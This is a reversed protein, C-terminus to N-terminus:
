RLGGAPLYQASGYVDGGTRESLRSFFDSLRDEGGAADRKVDEAMADASILLACGDDSIEWGPPYGTLDSPEIGLTYDEPEDGDQHSFRFEFIGTTATKM